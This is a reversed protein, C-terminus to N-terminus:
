RRYEPPTGFANFGATVDLRRACRVADSIRVGLHKVKFLFRSYRTCADYVLRRDNKNRVDAAVQNM